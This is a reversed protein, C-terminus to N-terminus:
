RSHRVEWLGDLHLRATERTCAGTRKASVKTASGLRLQLHEAYFRNFLSAGAQTELARQAAM